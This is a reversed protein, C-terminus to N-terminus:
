FPLDPFTLLEFIWQDGQPLLNALLGSVQNPAAHQLSAYAVNAATAVNHWMVFIIPIRERNNPEAFVVVLFVVFPFDSEKSSREAPVWLSQGLHSRIDRIRLLLVVSEAFDGLTLSRVFARIQLRM